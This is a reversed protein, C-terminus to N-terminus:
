PISDNRDRRAPWHMHCTGARQALVFLNGESALTAGMMRPVGCGRRAPLGKGCILRCSTASQLTCFGFKPWRLAGGDCAARGGTSALGNGLAAVGCTAGARWRLTGGDCATSGGTCALGSWGGAVGCTAGAGCVLLPPIPSSHTRHAGRSRGCGASHLPPSWSVLAAAQRRTRTAIPFDLHRESSTSGGRSPCLISLPDITARRQLRTLSTKGVEDMEGFAYREDMPSFLARAESLTIWGREGVPLARLSASLALEDVASLRRADPPTSTGPAHNEMNGHRFTVNCCQMAGGCRQQARQFKFSQSM